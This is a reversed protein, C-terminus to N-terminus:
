LMGFGKAYTIAKLLREKLAEKTSYEPLLLANFCTHSTPLRDSDSGNKAIIMKLKGLGGVPARDTGTTFQLFLKKQEEGFTHVTEWFDRIVRSEKNYGGDYETSEELAHFDLNRSGCILLEIEDPRFLYKLPSENTVMHFGRRFAKFQVEMSKNLIYDAYQSVFEKRNDNTVPIDEGNERLDHTVPNGFLDTQSIQFTLMMDKEVDGGYDLIEKMSQYLAPHSDALDLLTGKKGMLKRYAVMPFHVDLICNNYIALGLVIGILTYQGENELSSPNFWFVKATDDYTFMGIDPNFIEEVVLQFFEKSVGGEDLGQEGEFEVYLQKKLDSPNEMAIMELRILADDILHDRRVKLRLYPNAQQGEVMSYLATIRRESYMRIRNDYYLGQNKTVANLIFPCSMFAFKSEANVKFFVYDKDMELVENLPENIFEEFAILPHRCDSARVGLEVELPDVRPGRPSIEEEGLLEQLTLDNSEILMDDEEENQDPDLEGALINAFYVIKLCKAAAVVTEDDQVLNDNDFDNCVVTFTILQQFTEMMRLIHEMGFGSWLRALRAQGPLSLKSMAKCFLPLASELYEPSHLNTNEMVIVFLNLYNHDFSYADHYTLESEVSPMMSVLANIIAAEIQEHPLIKDYVRRLGDIDVTVEDDKDDSDDEDSQDGKEAGKSTSPETDSKSISSAGQKDESKKKDRQSQLKDPSLQKTRFSRMLCESDSFVKGIARILSTYDKNEECVALLECVKYETLFNLKSLDDEELDQHNM